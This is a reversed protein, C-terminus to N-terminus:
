RLLKEIRGGFTDIVLAKHKSHQLVDKLEHMCSLLLDDAGEKMLETTAATRAIDALDIM